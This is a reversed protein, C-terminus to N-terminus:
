LYLKLESKGFSDTLWVKGLAVLIPAWVKTCPMMLSKQTPDYFLIVHLTFASRFLALLYKPTSYTCFNFFKHLSIRSPTCRAWGWWLDTSTM